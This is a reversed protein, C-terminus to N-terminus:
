KGRITTRWEELSSCFKTGRAVHKRGVPTLALKDYLFEVLRPFREVSLDNRTRQKLRFARKIQSGIRGRLGSEDREIPQMYAVYLDILYDVYGSLNADAGISNPPFGRPGRTRSTTTNNNVTIPGFNNNGVAVSGHSATVTTRKTKQKLAQHLEYIAMAQRSTQPSLEIEGGREHAQKIRTLQDVSYTKTKDVITHCTPCLLLLNAPASREAETLAPDYRPGGKRRARIHGVHGVVTEDVVLQVTCNPLACQNHAKAFLIKITRPTIPM